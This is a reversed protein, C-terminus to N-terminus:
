RGDHRIDLSAAHIHRHHKMEPHPDADLWIDMLISPAGAGAPEVATTFALLVAGLPGIFREM